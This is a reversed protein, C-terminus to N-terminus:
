RCIRREGVFLCRATNQIQEDYQEGQEHERSEVQHNVTEEAEGAFVESFGLQMFVYGAGGMGVLALLLSPIIKKYFDPVIKKHTHIEASYYSGYFKADRKEYSLNLCEKLSSENEVDMLKSSQYRVVKEGNDPNHFHIHRGTVSRIQTDVLRPQQTVLHLDFGSHRHVNMKAIHEPVKSGVSRPPFFEQAEDIIMVAGYPLKYWQHPHEMKKWHLNFRELRKKTPKFDFHNCADLFRRLEATKKEPYLKLVWDIWTQYIPEQRWFCVLFPLDDETVVESKKHIARVIPLVRELDSESANPLWKGYFWGAFTCAFDLDVILAKINYYYVPRGSYDLDEIVEKVTNLSKSAGPFGTILRIM